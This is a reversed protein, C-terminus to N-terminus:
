FLQVEMYPQWLRSLFCQPTGDVQFFYSLASLEVMMIPYAIKQLLPIREINDHVYM